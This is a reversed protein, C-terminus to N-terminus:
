SSVSGGEGPEGNPDPLTGAGPTAEENTLAPDAHPGAPPRKEVEGKNPSSEPEQRGTKEDAKGGDNRHGM